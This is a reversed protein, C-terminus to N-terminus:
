ADGLPVQREANLEVFRKFIDSETIIGVVRGQDVVPLGSVRRELMTAAAEALTMEPAATVVEHTMFDDLEVHSAPFRSAALLLDREVVIGVLRDARDLVPLRRLRRDQMLQLAQQFDADERITVPPSSMRTRVFM